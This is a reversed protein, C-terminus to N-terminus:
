AADLLKMYDATGKNVYGRKEPCYSPSTEQHGADWLSVDLSHQCLSAQRQRSSTQARFHCVLNEGKEVQRVTGLHPPEPPVLVHGFTPYIWILKGAQSNVSQCIPQRANTELHIQVGFVGHSGLSLREVADGYGPLVGPHLLYGQPRASVQGRQQDSAKQGTPNKAKPRQM